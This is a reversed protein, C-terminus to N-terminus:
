RNRTTLYTYLAGFAMFLVWILSYWPNAMRIASLLLNLILCCFGAVMFCASLQYRFSLGFTVIFFTGLLLALAPVGLASDNAFQVVKVIGSANTLASLNFPYTMISM